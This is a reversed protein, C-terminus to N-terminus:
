DLHPRAVPIAGTAFSVARKVAGRGAVRSAIPNRSQAGDASLRPRRADAINIARGVAMAVVISVAFWTLLAAGVIGLWHM